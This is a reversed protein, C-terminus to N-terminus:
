KSVFIGEIASHDSLRNERFSYLYHCAKLNLKKFSLIHDFHRRTIIRGKRSLIWSFEDKKYGNLLRFIDSLDNEALGGIISREGSNWANGKRCKNVIVVQGNTLIKQGWTIVKGKITEAQPSNFDGCM